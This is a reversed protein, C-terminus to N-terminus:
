CSRDKFTSMFVLKLKFHSRLPKLLYAMHPARANFFILGAKLLSYLVGLVEGLVWTDGSVISHLGLSGTWSHKGSNEKM